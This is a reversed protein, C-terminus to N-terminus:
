FYWLLLQLTAGDGPLLCQWCLVCVALHARPQQSRSLFLEVLARQLASVENVPSSLSRQSSYEIVRLSSVLPLALARM